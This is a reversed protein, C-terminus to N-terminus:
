RFAYYKGTGDAVPRLLQTRADPPHLGTRLLRELDCLVASSEAVYFHNLRFMQLSSTTADITDVHPLLLPGDPQTDGARSEGNLTRSAALALDNSAAYLTVGGRIHNIHEALTAFEKRGIDPAALVVDDIVADPSPQAGAVTEDLAEMLPLNGMSHAIVTIRKAGSKRAVLDLFARLSPGAREAKGRDTRYADLTGASPWSYMFAAGDFQMDYTIQATRYIADDFTNYFGHVFVLAQDKYTKSAALRERARAAFQDEPLTEISKITFHRNPDETEFTLEVDTGPVRLAWPREVSPVQHSVPVTISAVGLSLSDAESSTYSVRAANEYPKRNTGFFVQVIHYEAAPTPAPKAAEATSGGGSSGSKPTGRKAKRSQLEPKPAAVSDNAAADPAAVPPPPPSAPLPVALGGGPPNLPPASTSPASPPEATGLNPQSAGSKGGEEQAAAAAKEAEAIRRQDEAARAQEAAATGPRVIQFETDPIPADRALLASKSRTRLAEAEATRGQLDFVAALRQQVDGAEPSGPGFADEAIALAQALTAEAEALKPGKGKAQIDALAKLSSLMVPSGPGAVAGNIANAERQLKEAEALRGKQSELLALEALYVALRPDDKLAKRAAAVLKRSLALAPATKGAQALAEIRAEAKDFKDQNQALALAPLGVLLVLCLSVLLVRAWRAGMTFAM